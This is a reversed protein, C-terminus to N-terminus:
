KLVSFKVVKIKNGFQLTLLYNGSPLDDPLLYIEEYNGADQLQKNIVQAVKKGSLDFIDILVWTTETLSYNITLQQKAPNPYVSISTETNIDTKKNPIITDTTESVTKAYVLRQGNSNMPPSMMGLSNLAKVTFYYTIGKRMKPVNATVSRSTGNNTWNIINSDGPTLGVAFYYNTINSSPETAANWNASISGPFYFYNIDSTGLGDRVANMSPASYDINITASVISSILDAGDIVISKVKGSPTSPMPNEFQIDNTTAAGVTIMNSTGTRSKLVEVNDISMTCNGSRFCLYNGSTIPTADTWSGAFVNNVWVSIKGTLKNYMVKFDYTTNAAFPYVIDANLYMVDATYEYIQLKGGGDVRAYIMYSNGRGNGTNVSCMFHVGARRNTGSGGITQTWHYLLQNSTQPLAVYLNTNSSAEDSNYAAGSSISWTGADSAWDSHLTAKSFDDNFFGNGKNSRWFDSTTYNDVGYFRYQVGTGVDSDTYNATFNATAWAPLTVATNPPTADGGVCTYYAKYGVKNTAGDTKYKITLAHNTSTINGPSNTSSYAGILASTTSPGDYLWLSDYGAEFEFNSFQINVNKTVDPAITYTYIEKDHYNRNPGGMDFLSDTCSQAYCNTLKDNIANWLETYGDDYGLTWIGIGGLSRQNVIDYRERMSMSDDIFCQYWSGSSQFAYYPTYSNYDFSKNANSYNGSSNVRVTRYTVTSSNASGTSAAPITNATTQYQRGYYPVGLLLKSAPVGQYLYYSISKSMCYNYGTEFGYLPDTPGANSSGSYYYDYGMIILLDLYSSINPIDFIGNWDVAYLAISIECGPVSDHMTTCFQQIFATLNAKQTSSVGEFDLNVGNGGRSRLLSICNQTFTNKATTSTLFTSHSSFLTACFSIKVGNNKAATVASSTSWAFSTNSNAGTSPNITYDFYCLDSILNWKYNNHLTSGNWYPHWGYVRRGNLSCTALRQNTNDNHLKKFKVGTLQEQLKDWDAEKTYGYKDYFAKQEQMVSQAQLGSLFYFFFILTFFQKM